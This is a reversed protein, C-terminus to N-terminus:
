ELGLQQKLAEPVNVAGELLNVHNWITYENWSINALNAPFGDGFNAGSLNAESLNAGSLNVGDFFYDGFDSYGLYAKSLNAGSLDAGSLNAGSLNAGSLNADRLDAGSLNAGRLDADMFAVGRLFARSLNGYFDLESLEVYELSIGSLDADRLFPEIISFATVNICRGYGIIGLLRHKDFNDSGKQGSPNFLIKAKLDDKSQSYRHLEFLLIM